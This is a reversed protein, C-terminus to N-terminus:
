FWERELLTEMAQSVTANPSVYSVISRFRNAPLASSFAKHQVEKITDGEAGM